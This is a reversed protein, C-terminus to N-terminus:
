SISIRLSCPRSFFHAVLFPKSSGYSFLILFSFFWRLSIRSSYLFLMNPPVLLIYSAISYPWPGLLNLAFVRSLEVRFNPM